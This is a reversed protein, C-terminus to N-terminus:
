TGLQPDKPTKQWEDYTRERPQSTGPVINVRDATLRNLDHPHTRIFAVNTRTLAMVIKIHSQNLTCRWRDDMYAAGALWGKGYAGGSQTSRPLKITPAEVLRAAPPRTGGEVKGDDRTITYGYATLIVIAAEKPLPSGKM